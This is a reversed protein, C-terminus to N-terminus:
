QRMVEKKRTAAKKKPPVTGNQVFKARVGQLKLLGAVPVNGNSFEVYGGADHHLYVESDHDNCFSFSIAGDEWYDKKNYRKDKMAAALKTYFEDIEAAKYNQCGIRVSGNSRLLVDFGLGSQKANIAISSGKIAKIIEGVPHIDLDFVKDARPPKGDDFYATMDELDIIFYGVQIGTEGCTDWGDDEDFIDGTEAYATLMRAYGPQNCKILITKM